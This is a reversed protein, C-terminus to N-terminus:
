PKLHCTSRGRLKNRVVTVMSGLPLCVELTQGSRVMTVMSGLPLCVELTQGDRVMDMEENRCRKMACSDNRKEIEEM